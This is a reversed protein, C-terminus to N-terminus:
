LIFTHTCLVNLYCQICTRLRTNFECSLPEHLATIPRYQCTVLHQNLSHKTQMKSIVWDYDNLQLFGFRHLEHIHDNEDSTFATGTNGSSLSFWLQSSLTVHGGPKHTQHLFVSVWEQNRRQLMRLPFWPLCAEMSSPVLVQPCLPRSTHKCPWLPTNVQWWPLQLQDLKLSSCKSYPIIKIDYSSFSSIYDSCIIGRAYIWCGACLEAAVGVFFSRTNRRHDHQLVKVHLEDAPSMKSTCM